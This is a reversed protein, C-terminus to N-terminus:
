SLGATHVRNRLARRHSTASAPNIWPLPAANISTRSLGRYTTNDSLHFVPRFERNARLFHMPRRPLLRHSHKQQRAACDPGM